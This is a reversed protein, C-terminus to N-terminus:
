GIKLRVRERKDHAVRARTLLILVPYTVVIPVILAALWPWPTDIGVGAWTLLMWALGASLAGVIPGLVVGRTVREGLQFHVGIGIVAGVILAILIQM